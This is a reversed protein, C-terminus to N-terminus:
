GPNRPLMEITGKIGELMAQEVEPWLANRAGGEDLETATFGRLSLDGLYIIM